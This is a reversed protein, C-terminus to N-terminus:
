QIDLAASGMIAASAASVPAPATRAGAAIVSPGGASPVPRAGHATTWRGHGVDLASVTASSLALYGDLSKWRLLLERVEGLGLDAPLIAAVQSHVGDGAGDTANAHARLGGRSSTPASRSEDVRARLCRM